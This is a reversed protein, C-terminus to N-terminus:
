QFMHGVHFLHVKVFPIWESWGNQTENPTLKLKTQFWNSWIKDFEDYMPQRNINGKALLKVVNNWVVKTNYTKTKIIM